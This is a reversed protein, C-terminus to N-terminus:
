SRTPEAFIAVGDQGGGRLLKAATSPDADARLEVRYVGGQTPGSTIVAGMARLTESVRTMGIGDRFVVDLSSAAAVVGTPGADVGASATQYVPESSSTIWAGVAGGVLLAAVLSAALALPWSVDRREATPREVQDPRSTREAGGGEVLVPGPFGAPERPLEAVSAGREDAEASEIRALVQAYVREPDPATSGGVEDGRLLAIERRCERCSAAHSEVAGRQESDLEDPYWPIWSLIASPCTKQGSATM